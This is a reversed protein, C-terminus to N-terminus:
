THIRIPIGANAIHSRAQIPNQDRHAFYTGAAVADAGGAQFGEIFHAAVGCGGATIVPVDVADVVSRTARLDLGSGGGDRDISTLLLEGAGRECCEVAWAELTRGNSARGSDFWVTAVGDADVRYDISAVLCQSGYADAIRTILEPDDGAATNVSVKDAGHNLLVRVDDVSRVGGGVTIPMFVEEATARIVSLVAEREHSNPDIDLFILEDAVQAQYIRAQSIPDGIEIVQDFRNTTVLVMRETAGITRQRMQLKPILRRKLM